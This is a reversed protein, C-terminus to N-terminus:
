PMIAAPARWRNRASGVSRLVRHLDDLRNCLHARAAAHQNAVDAHHQRHPRQMPPVQRQHGRRPGLVRVDDGRDEHVRQLEARALVELVIRPRELAVGGQQGLRPYVEEKMGRDLLQIRGTEGGGDLHAARRFRELARRPRPVEPSDGGDDGLEEGDRGRGLGVEPLLVRLLQRHQAAEHGVEVQRDLQAPHRGHALGIAQGEATAVGVETGGLAGGGWREVTGQAGRAIAPQGARAIGVSQAAIGLRGHDLSQMAYIFGQGEEGLLNEAPVRLDEFVLQVTPAARLGMKNEKKGVRFGPMDPTVVCASIGKAGRRADPTDTRAMVLVVLQDYTGSTVWAKTGNLVWHDGDRVAQARLAGADSGADPESLAFAGLLEGRAMPKLYREKLAGSGHRLLMQTPLSNHVSMMVASSADVAAIEELAALYSVTDLGLGDYEEPILMGLFGLEGFRRPLSPEFFAEEDWRAVHPAIEAAAFERATRQISRQDETLAFLNDDPM